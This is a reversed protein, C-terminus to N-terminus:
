AALEVPSAPQASPILFYEGREISEALDSEFEAKALGLAEAVAALGIDHYMRTLMSGGDRQGTAEPIAEFDHRM